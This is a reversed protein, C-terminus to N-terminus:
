LYWFSFDKQFFPKWPNSFQNQALVTFFWWKQYMKAMKSHDSNKESFGGHANRPMITSLIQAFLSLIWYLPKQSFKTLLWGVLWNFIVPAIRHSRAVAAAPGFASGLVGGQWRSHCVLEYWVIQLHQEMRPWMWMWLKWVLNNPTLIYTNSHLHTAKSGLHHAYCLITNYQITTTLQDIWEWLNSSLYINNKKQKKKSGDSGM